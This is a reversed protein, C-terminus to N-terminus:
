QDIESITKVRGARIAEVLAAHDFETSQLPDLENRPILLAQQKGFSVSHKWIACFTWQHHLKLRSNM